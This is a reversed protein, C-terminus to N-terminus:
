TIGAGSIFWRDTGVKLLSANGNPALTRNGTGTTGSLKLTVGTASITIPNTGDNIIVIATDRPLPVTANTPITITQGAVNQSYIHKGQDTLALTYAGSQANQPVGLYGLEVGGRKVTGTIDVGTATATLVDVGSSTVYVTSGRLKLPLWASTDYNYATLYGTGGIYSIAAGSGTTPSIGTVARIAGAVDLGLNDTLTAARVGARRFDLEDADAAQSIEWTVAAGIVQYGVAGQADTAREVKAIAVGTDRKAHLLGGLPATGAQLGTAARISGTLDLGAFGIKPTTVAADAIKPTTVSGDSPTVGASDFLVIWKGDALDDAFTGSSNHAEACVYSGTGNKVVDSIAYATDELWAGRPLWIVGAGLALMVAPTLSDLTVTGNALAGDDRQLIALNALAGELTAQVASFEADIATGPQPLSPYSASHDAFGYSRRYPTPQAM